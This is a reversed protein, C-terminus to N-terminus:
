KSQESCQECQESHQQNNHEYSKFKTQKYNPITKGSRNKGNILDEYLDSTVGCDHHIVYAM